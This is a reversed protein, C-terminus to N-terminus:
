SSRLLRREVYTISLILPTKENSTSLPAILSEGELHDVEPAQFKSILRLPALLQLAADYVGSYSGVLHRPVFDDLFQGTKDGSYRVLMTGHLRVRYRAAGPTQVRELLSMNTIFRKMDRATLDSREPMPRDGAKRRWLALADNLEVRQFDGAPCCTFTWGLAKARQNFAFVPDSQAVGHMALHFGM